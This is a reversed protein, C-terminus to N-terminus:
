FYIDRAWHVSVPSGDAVFISDPQAQSLFRFDNGYLKAFDVEIHASTHEWVQWRPHKVEYEKTPGDKQKVYGFYHETIFESLTGNQLPTSSGQTQVHIHNQCDRTKWRFNYNPPAIKTQMQAHAYNEQYLGNAVCVIAKKPVFEKIFVVGREWTNGRKRRVYFRLNIEPFNTHFPISIGMVRTKLFLFAVLSVYCKGAFFDLETGLPVYKQLLHPEVEYNLMVLHQWAATLFISKEALLQQRVSETHLVMRRQVPNGPVLSCLEKNKFIRKRHHAIIDYFFDLLRRPFLSLLLALLRHWGGLASLISQIARSKIYFRSQTLCLITNANVAQLYSLDEHPEPKLARANTFQFCHHTDRKAIFQVFTDCLLCDSDYFIIM